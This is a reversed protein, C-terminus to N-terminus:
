ILVLTVHAINVHTTLVKPPHLRVVNRNPVTCYIWVIYLTEKLQYGIIQEYSVFRNSDIMQYQSRGVLTAFLVKDRSMREQFANTECESKPKQLLNFFILLHISYIYKCSILKSGWFNGPFDYIWDNELVTLYNM